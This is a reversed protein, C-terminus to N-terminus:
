GRDSRYPTPESVALYSVTFFLVRSIFYLGLLWPVLFWPSSALILENGCRWSNMRRPKCVWSYTIFIPTIAKFCCLSIIVKPNSHPVWVFLLLRVQPSRLPIPFLFYLLCRPVLYSVLPLSRPYINVFASSSNLVRKNIKQYRRRYTPLSYSAMGVAVVMTATTRGKLGFWTESYIPRM